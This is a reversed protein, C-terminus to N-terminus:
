PMEKKDVFVKPSRLKWQNKNTRNENYFTAMERALLEARYSTHYKTISRHLTKLSIHSLVEVIRPRYWGPLDQHNLLFLHAGRLTVERKCEIQGAWCEKIFTLTDRLYSPNREWLFELGSVKEFVRWESGREGPQIDFGCERVIRLVELSTSEDRFNRSRFIDNADVKTRQTNYEEFLLAEHASDQVDLLLCPVLLLGEPRLISLGEVRHQGDIPGRGLTGDPYRAIKITDFLLKNFSEAIQYVRSTRLIRQYGQHARLDYLPLERYEAWDLRELPANM